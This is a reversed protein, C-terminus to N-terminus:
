DVQVFCILKSFFFKFKNWPSSGIQKWFLSESTRFGGNSLLLEDSNSLFESVGFVKPYVVKWRESKGLDRRTFFSILYGYLDFCVDFAFPSFDGIMIKDKQLTWWVTDPKKKSEPHEFITPGLEGKPYATYDAAPLGMLRM